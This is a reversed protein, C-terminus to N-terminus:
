GQAVTTGDGLGQAPWEIVVTSSAGPALELRAEGGFLESVKAVVALELGIREMPTGVLRDFHDGRLSAPVVTERPPAEAVVRIVVRGGGEVGGVVVRVPRGEAGVVASTIASQIALRARSPDLVVRPPMGPAAASRVEPSGSPARANHDEVVEAVLRAPDFPLPHDRGATEALRAYDSLQRLMRELQRANEGLIDLDERAVPDLGITSDALMRHTLGIVNLPNRLDHIVLMLFRPDFSMGM